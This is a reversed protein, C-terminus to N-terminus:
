KIGIGTFAKIFNKQAFFFLIAIPITIIAMAAWKQEVNEGPIESAFRYIALQLTMKDPSRLYLLAGLFDNWSGMFTLVTITALAPKSMPLVISRFIRFENAGDIRTAELYSDDIHKMFQIMLFINYASMAGPIIMVKYTDIWGWDYLMMYQPILLLVGPIMMTALIISVFLEKHKFGTKMIGYAVMSSFLVNLITMSSAIFISNFFLRTMNLSEFLKKYGNFNIAKPLATPNHIIESGEKFSNMIMYFFPYIVIVIGAILMAYIFINKYLEGNNKNDM